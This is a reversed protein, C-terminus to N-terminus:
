TKKRTRRKAPASASKTTRKPKDEAQAKKYEEVVHRPIRGRAALEIGNQQAWDRIAGAEGSSATRPAAGATRARKIRGGVRRASAVYDALSNRLQEANADTLDIEYRVGDLGFEVTSVDPSSTGDLDDVLQVVVQQAM